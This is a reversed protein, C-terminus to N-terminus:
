TLLYTLLQVSSLGKQCVALREAAGSNGFMKSFRIRLVEASSGTRLWILGNWVASRHKKKVSEEWRSRPRGLTGKRERTGVLIRYV